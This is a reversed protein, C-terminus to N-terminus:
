YVIVLGSLRVSVTDRNGREDQLIITGTDLCRGDTAMRYTNQTGSGWFYTIGKPLRWSPFATNNSWVHYDSTGGYDKMFRLTQTSGTSIARERALSLQMGISRASGKLDNSQTFGRFAPMLVVLLISGVVLAVMLELMSYGACSETKM